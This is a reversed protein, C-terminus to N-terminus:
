DVIKILSGHIYGVKGDIKVRYWKVGDTYAKGTITVKTGQKAIKTVRDADSSPAERVLVNSKTTKGTATLATVTSSSGSSSAGSNSSSGGSKSPPASKPYSPNSVKKGTYPCIGDPHLHPPYGGCHYHYSGLGSKNQNDRHGGYSDTRGSHAFAVSSLAILVALLLCFIRRKM